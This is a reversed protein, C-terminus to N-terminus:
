KSLKTIALDLISDHGQLAQAPDLDVACGATPEIGHETIHMQSDYVRVASMRISWGNPLELTIPMGAGGGTTAGVHIVGPISRMCMTMYNAASFTSRNTLIAVPKIWVINDASLPEFTIPRPSDFADHAPGTKHQIYGATLPQRIFHRVWTEAYSMSGGGNDRLDIILANASAMSSLIWDINGNGLGSNFSPIAIYGINQPLIGYTVNGLQSYEFNLYNEEILRADYNQPYDSWWKRYYSTQFSSSLNTHGDCLENIMDACVGFLQQKSLDATILPAYQNRIRNWDVDKEAFFCYHEDVATWLAEFNGSNDAPFEEIPHCASLAVAVPLLLSIIHLCSLRM